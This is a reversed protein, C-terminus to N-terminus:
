VSCDMGRHRDNYPVSSVPFSPAVFPLQACVALRGNSRKLGSARRALPCARFTLTPRHALAARLLMWPAVM